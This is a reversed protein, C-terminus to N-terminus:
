PRVKEQLLPINNMVSGEPLLTDAGGLLPFTKIGIPWLEDLVDNLGRGAVDEAVGHAGQAAAGDHHVDVVFQDDLSVRLDRQISDTFLHAPSRRPRLAQQETCIAIGCREIFFILSIQSM